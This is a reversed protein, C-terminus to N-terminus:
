CSPKLNQTKGFELGVTDMNLNEYIFELQDLYQVNRMGNGPRQSLASDIYSLLVFDLRYFIWFDKM